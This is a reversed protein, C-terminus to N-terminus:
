PKLQVPGMFDRKGIPVGNKRLIDYATTAHFYFNPTAFSTLYGKGTFKLQGNPIPFVIEKGEAGDLDGPKVKDLAAIADALAKKLDAFSTGPDKPAEGGTLRAVAGASHRIAQGIQVNFPFMDAILRDEILKAPEVNNTKCYAEAKDIVGSLATLIQKFVPVSYDYMASM